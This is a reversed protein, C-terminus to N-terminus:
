VFAQAFKGRIIYFALTSHKPAFNSSFYAFANKTLRQVLNNNYSVQLKKSREKTSTHNLVALAADQDTGKENITLQGKKIFVTNQNKKKRKIDFSNFIM